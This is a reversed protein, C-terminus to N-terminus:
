PTMGGDAQAVIKRRRLDNVFDSALQRGNAANSNITLGNITIGGATRSLYGSSRRVDGLYDGMNQWHNGQPRLFDRIMAMATGGATSQANVSGAGHDHGQLEWLMFDLQQQWTPNPGYRSILNRKRTGLWQYLGLAGISNRKSPDLSTNEAYAAAVMGRAREPSQGKRILYAEMEGARPIVNTAPSAASGGGSGKSFHTGLDEDVGQLFVDKAGRLNGHRLDDWFNKSEAWKKASEASGDFGKAVMALVAALAFFPAFAIGATIAAAGLVGEFIPVIKNALGFKDDLAIFDGVLATIAPRAQGEIRTKLDNLQMQLKKAAEADRETVNAHQQELDIQTKVARNGQELFYIVSQPLGLMQLRRAYEQASFRGRGAALKMLLAEPSSKNPDLDGAGIGFAAFGPDYQGLLRYDFMSKQMAQLATDADGASGGVGQIAKEWAIVRSTSMNLTDGFRSANAEGTLLNSAFDTIGKAGAFVLVLGAVENRLSRFSVGAQKTRGEVDDFTTKASERTKKFSDRVEREGKQYDSADLGFTVFFADIVNVGM